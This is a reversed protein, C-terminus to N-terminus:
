HCKETSMANLGASPFRPVGNTCRLPFVSVYTTPPLCGDNQVKVHCGLKQHHVKESGPAGFLFDILRKTKLNDPECRPCVLLPWKWNVKKLEHLSCCAPFGVTYM